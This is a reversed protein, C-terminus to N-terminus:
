GAFFSLEHASGLDVAGEDPQSMLNEFFGLVEVEKSEDADAAPADREGLAEGGLDLGELIAFDGDADEVYVEVAVVEGGDIDLGDDAGSVDGEVDGAFVDDKHVVDEIGAAGDAGREVGEEIVAAGRADLEEDEDVAAVAFEGDLGSEDAADDLGAVGFDDLDLEVFDVAHFFDQEDLTGVRSRRLDVDHRGSQQPDLLQVAGLDFSNQRAGLIKLGDLTLGDFLQVREASLHDDVEKILGGRAGAGAEFDGGLAEAGVRDGDGGGTRADGLAFGEDVGQVGEGGHAGVGDDHAVGGGARGVEERAV